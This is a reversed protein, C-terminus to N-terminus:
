GAELRADFNLLDRAPNFCCMAFFWPLNQMRIKNLFDSIAMTIIFYCIENAIAKRLFPVVPV